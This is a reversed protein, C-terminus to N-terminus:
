DQTDYKLGSSRTLDARPLAARGYDYYRMPKGVNISDLDAVKGMNDKESVSSGDVVALSGGGMGPLYILDTSPDIEMAGCTFSVLCFMFAAAAILTKM